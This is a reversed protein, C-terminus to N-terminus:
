EDPYSISDPLPKIWASLATISSAYGRLVGVIGIALVSVAMLVEVLTLGSKATLSYRNATLPKKAVLRKVSFAIRQKNGIPLIM